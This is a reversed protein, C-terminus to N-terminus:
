ETFYKSLQVTPLDYVRIVKYNYDNPYRAPIGDAVCLIHTAGMARLTTKNQAAMIPGLFLNDIIQNPRTYQMPLFQPM